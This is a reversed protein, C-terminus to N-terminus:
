KMTNNTYNASIKLKELALSDGNFVNVDVLENIGEVKVKDSYQWFDWKHNPAKINNYNAIWLNPYNAFYSDPKLYHTYFSDGTYIIPKVGYKKEVISIWNKIGKRWNKKSQITPLKEIDIVPPFDGEALEVYSMFNNAQITSNRNPWYFHYAGVSFKYKKAERWNKKFKRDKRTGVTARIFIFDIKKNSDPHVVKTWDINGQHHSIDIGHIKYSAIYKRKYANGGKINRGKVQHYVQKSKFYSKYYVVTGSLIMIFFLVIGLTIVDGKNM